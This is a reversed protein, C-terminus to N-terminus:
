TKFHIPLRGPWAPWLAWSTTSKKKYKRGNPSRSRTQMTRAGSGSLRWRRRWCEDPGNVPRETFSGYVTWDANLNSIGFFYSDPREQYVEIGIQPYLVAPPRAVALGLLLAALVLM